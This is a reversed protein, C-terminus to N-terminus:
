PTTSAPASPSPSTTEGGLETGTAVPELSAASSPPLIEKAFVIKGGEVKLVTASKVPNHWEDFSIKGCVGPFEKVAAIHDRIDSGKLSPAESMAHALLNASDYALAAISDPEEGYKAQYKAVFEQVVPQPSAPSYHNVYYAGELASGGIEILKPSEWGDGGLLPQQLGLGRAQQAILGVETYYGPIVILDPASSKMKTLLGNFDKDGESYSAESVVTGGLEEYRAKFFGALGVSYDNKVDTLIAVKKAGLDNAAFDAMVRGQFEDIFCARFIYDAVVPGNPGDMETVKPNTSSPTIMPIGAAQCIPAAAMSRSSAVEGLVAVVKDQDILKQVVAAAEEPKGQDDEHLAQLPRGKVGGKANIEEFALDIGKQTSQGFTATSGTLSGYVGVKIPGAVPPPTATASTDAPHEASGGGGCGALLTAALLTLGLAASSLRITRM